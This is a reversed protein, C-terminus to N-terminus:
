RQRILMLVATTNSVLSDVITEISRLSHGLDLLDVVQIVLM